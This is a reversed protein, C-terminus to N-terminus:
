NYDWNDYKTQPPSSALRYTFITSMAELKSKTLPMTSKPTEKTKIPKNKYVCYGKDCLM